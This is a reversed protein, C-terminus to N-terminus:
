LACPTAIVLVASPVGSCVFGQIEAAAVGHVIFCPETSLQPVSSPQPYSIVEFGM